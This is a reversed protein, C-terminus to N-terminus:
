KAWFIPPNLFYSAKQFKFLDIRRVPGRPSHPHPLWFLGKHHAASEPYEWAAHRTLSLKNPRKPKGLAQGGIFLASNSRKANKGVANKQSGKKKESKNHEKSRQTCFSSFEKTGTIKHQSVRKSSTIEYRSLLREEESNWKTRTSKSNTNRKNSKNTRQDQNRTPKPM